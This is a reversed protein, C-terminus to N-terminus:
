WDVVVGCEAAATIVCMSVYEDEHFSKYDKHEPGLTRCLTYCIVYRM